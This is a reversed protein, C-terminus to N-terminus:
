EPLVLANAVDLLRARLVDARQAFEKQLRM